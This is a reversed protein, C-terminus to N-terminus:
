PKKLFLQCYRTLPSTKAQIAGSRASSSPHRDAVKQKMQGPQHIRTPPCAEQSMAQRVDDEMRGTGISITDGPYRLGAREARHVVCKVAMFLREAGVFVDLPRFRACCEAQRFAIRFQDGSCTDHVLMVWLQAPLEELDSSRDFSDSGFHGAQRVLPANKM